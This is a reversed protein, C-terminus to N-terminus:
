YQFNLLTVFEVDGKCNLALKSGNWLLQWMFQGQIEDLSKGCIKRMETREKCIARPMRDGQCEFFMIEGNQQYQRIDQQM